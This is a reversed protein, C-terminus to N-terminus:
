DLVCVDSNLLLYASLSCWIVRLLLQAPQTARCAPACTHRLLHWPWVFREIWACGVCRLCPAGQSPVHGTTCKGHKSATFACGYASGSVGQSPCHSPHHTAPGSTTSSMSSTLLMTLTARLLLLTTCVLAGPGTHGTRAPALLLRLPSHQQQMWLSSTLSQTQRSRWLTSTTSAALVTHQLVCLALHRDCFTLNRHASTFLLAPPLWTQQHQLPQPAVAMRAANDPMQSHAALTATNPALQNNGLCYGPCGAYGSSFRRWMVSSHLLCHLM